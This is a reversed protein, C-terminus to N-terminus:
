FCNCCAPSELAQLVILIHIFDMKTLSRLVRSGTDECTRGGEAATHEVGSVWRPLVQTGLEELCM